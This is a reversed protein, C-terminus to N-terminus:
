LSAITTKAKNLREIMSHDNKKWGIKDRVILHGDSTLLFTQEISIILGNKIYKIAGISWDQDNDHIHNKCSLLFLKDGEKMNYLKWIKNYLDQNFSTSDMVLNTQENQVLEIEQSHTTSVLFLSFVLILLNKM